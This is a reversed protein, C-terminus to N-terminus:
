RVRVSLVPAPNSLAVGDVVVGRKLDNLLALRDLHPDRPRWYARPIAGENTVLLAPSGSRVSITFDPATIKKLDVELMADRAIQRRADARETLRKLRSQLAEIHGKLGESLAEDILASRVVAAVIESLDTAGELTDTLTQEDLDTDLTIIRDRITRYTAVSHSIQNM